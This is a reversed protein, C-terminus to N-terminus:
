TLFELSFPEKQTVVSEWAYHSEYALPSLISIIINRLEAFFDKFDCIPWLQRCSGHAGGLCVHARLVGSCTPEQQPKRLSVGQSEEAVSCLRVGKKGPQKFNKQGEPKIVKTKDQSKLKM